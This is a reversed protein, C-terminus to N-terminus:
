LGDLPLRCQPYHETTGMSDGGPVEYVSGSGVEPLHARRTAQADGRPRGAAAPGAGSFDYMQMPITSGKCGKVIQGSREDANNMQM